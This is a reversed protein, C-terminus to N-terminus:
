LLAASQRFASHSEASGRRYSSHSCRGSRNPRLREGMCRGEGTSAFCLSGGRCRVDSFAYTYTDADTYTDANTNADANTDTNANTDTYADADTNTDANAGYGVSYIAM